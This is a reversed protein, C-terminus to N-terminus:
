SNFSMVDCDTEVIVFIKCFCKYQMFSKVYKATAHFIGPPIKGEGKEEPRTFIYLNSMEQTLRGFYIHGTILRIYRCSLANYIM